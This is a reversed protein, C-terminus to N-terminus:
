QGEAESKSANMKGIWRVDKTGYKEREIKRRVQNEVREELTPMIPYFLDNATPKIRLLLDVHMNEKAMVAMKFTSFWTQWENSPNAGSEWFLPVGIPSKMSQAM